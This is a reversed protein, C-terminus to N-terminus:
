RGFLKVFFGKNKEKELEKRTIALEDSLQRNNAILEDFQKIKEEQHEIKLQQSSNVIQLKTMEDKMTLMIEQAKIIKDALDNNKRKLLEIEKQQESDGLVIPNSIMLSSIFDCAYEDLWTGNKGKKEYHGDLEIKHKNLHKYIAKDTVGKSIAFDQLKIM